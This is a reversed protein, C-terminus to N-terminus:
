SRTPLGIQARYEDATAPSRGLEAAITRARTFLELNSALLEDGNPHRWCSDELGVRINLGLMTALTTIYLGARGANCVTIAAGPDLRRIQDVMLFLHAAMSRTDDAWAGSVLTRGVDVPLGYLIIWNTQAGPAIIGTDFLRRKAFEVEGSSHVVIEPSVGCELLKRVAPTVFAEPHGAACPAVEALGATAPSLCEDFTSGNLVNLNAVFDNGFRARLPELVLGYAETPPLDKDLRRGKSDTVWTFDIHVGCAGAEIVQSAADVYEEADVPYDPSAPLGARGAVAVNIAIKEPIDWRPQLTADAVFAYEEMETRAAEWLSPPTNM